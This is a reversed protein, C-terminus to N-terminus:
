TQSGANSIRDGLLDAINQAADKRSLSRANEAMRELAQDNDILNCIIELLHEGLAEDEQVVLSAGRQEFVAANRIQDGRSGSRSLPVLISPLGCAALEWLTNSGARCVVLSASALIDSLEANFFAQPFYGNVEMKQFDNKGTQHVVFCKKNLRDLIYRVAVNIQKAGQSGGLVLLIKRGSPAGVYARGKEMNGALLATRIPNGTYVVKERHKASFFSSTEEFSTLVKEAFLSNIKTAIGPDFDSEHTFVPIRLFGAAAVVPVSVYGGKSFVIGPRMKM